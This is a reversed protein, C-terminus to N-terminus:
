SNPYGCYKWRGDERVMLWTDDVQGPVSLFLLSTRLEGSVRVVAQDGSRSIETFELDRLDFDIDELGVDVYYNAILDLATIVLGAEMLAQQQAACTRRALENGDYAVAAQLYRRAAAEPGELAGGLLRLGVVVGGGALLVILVVRWPFARRAPAGWGDGGGWGADPPPNGRNDNWNDDWSATPRRQSM